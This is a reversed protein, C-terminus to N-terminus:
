LWERIDEGFTPRVVDEVQDADTMVSAPSLLIERKVFPFGLAILRRWGQITPNDGEAVVLTGPTAPEVSLGSTQILRGLGIEYNKIIDRKDREVRISRWFGALPERALCGNRYGVFHSQLHWGEQSSSVLGWVDTTSHKSTKLSKTM